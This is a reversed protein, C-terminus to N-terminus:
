FTFKYRHAGEFEDYKENYFCFNDSLEKRVVAEECFSHIGTTREGSPFLAGTGCKYSRKIELLVRQVSLQGFHFYPSLNSVGNRNSPDNRTEAYTKLKPIFQQMSTIAASEGSKIWEVEPVTQDVAHVISIITEWMSDNLSRESSNARRKKATAGVDSAGEEASQGATYFSHPHTIVPPFETLFTDVARHVKGRITKASFECKESVIWCPCVNHADVEILKIGNERAYQRPDSLKNILDQKWKKSIRLPSFDCVLTHVDNNLCYEPLSTDPPGSIIHFPINLAKAAVSFEKLGRLMFGYHRINAGLFSASLCFVISLGSENQIALEQAKLLAWNDHLRQDRSMWYVVNGGRRRKINPSSYLTRCRQENISVASDTHLLLSSTTPIADGSSLLLQELSLASATSNIEVSGKFSTESTPLLKWRDILISADRVVDANNHKRLKGVIRGIGSSKLMQFTMPSQELSQILSLIQQINNTSIANTLEEITSPITDGFSASMIISNDSVSLSQTLIGRHSYSYSHRSISATTQLWSSYGFYRRTPYVFPVSRAFFSFAFSIQSAILILILRIYTM